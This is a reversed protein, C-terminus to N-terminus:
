PQHEQRSSQALSHDSIRQEGLRLLAHGLLFFDEAELRSDGLREYLAMAPEDREQQFMACAGAPPTWPTTPKSRSTTAGGKRGDPWDQRGYAAIGRQLPSAPSSRVLWASGLAVGALILLCLFSFVLWRKRVGAGPM